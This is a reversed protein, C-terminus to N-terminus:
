VPHSRSHGVVAVERIEQHAAFGDEVRPSAPRATRDTYHLTLMMIVAVLPISEDWFGEAHPRTTMFVKQRHRERGASCLRLTGAKKAVSCVRRRPNRAPSRNGRCM